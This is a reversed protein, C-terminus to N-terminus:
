ELYVGPFRLDRPTSSPYHWNFVGVGVGPYFRQSQGAAVATVYGGSRASAGQTKHRNNIRRRRKGDYQLGKRRNINWRSTILIIPFPMAYYRLVRRDATARGRPGRSQGRMSTVIAISAACSMILEYKVAAHTLYFACLCCFTSVSYFTSVSCWVVFIPFCAFVGRFCAPLAANYVIAAGRAQTHTGIM